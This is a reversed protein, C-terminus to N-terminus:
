NCGALPALHLAKLENELPVGNSVRVPCRIEETKRLRKVSFVSNDNGLQSCISGGCSILVKFASNFGM